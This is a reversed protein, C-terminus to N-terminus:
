GGGIALEPKVMELRLSTRSCRAIEDLSSGVVDVLEEIVRLPKGEKDSGRFEGLLLLACRKNPGSCFLFTSGGVNRIVFADDYAVGHLPRYVRILRSRLVQYDESGQIVGTLSLYPLRVSSQLWVKTGDAKLFM